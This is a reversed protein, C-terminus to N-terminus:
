LIARIIYTRRNRLRRKLASATDPDTIVSDIVSDIDEPDIEQLRNAQYILEQKTINRFVSESEPNMDPDILTELETVTDGFARGKPSGQARFLLAGGPDIRVPDDNEDTVINDYEMGIVDWNALWADIIFGDRLKRIYTEDGLRSYLDTEAGPVLPSVVRTRGDSSSGLFSRAVPVGALAYLEATLVENEAHDNTRPIKVYYQNGEDDRYFGGPNSGAREGIKVWNDVNPRSSEDESDGINRPSKMGFKREDDDDDDEDEDEDEDDDDDEDEDEDEDENEISIHDDETLFYTKSRFFEENFADFCESFAHYCERYSTANLIGDIGKQIYPKISLADYLGPLDLILNACAIMNTKKMDETEGKIDIEYERDPGLAPELVYPLGPFYTNDPVLSYVGGLDSFLFRDIGDGEGQVYLMNDPKIDTHIVNLSEIMSMYAIITVAISLATNYTTYDSYEDPEFNINDITDATEYLIADKKDGEVYEYDKVDEIKMTGKYPIFIMDRMVRAYNDSPNQLAKCVALEEEYYAPEIFAKAAYRKQEGNEDEFEVMYVRGYAGQGLIRTPKMEYRVRKRSACGRKTKSASRPKRRSNKRTHVM